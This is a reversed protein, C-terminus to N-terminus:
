SCDVTRDLEVAVDDGSASITVTGDCTANEFTATSNEGPDLSGDSPLLSRTDGDHTATVATLVTGSPFQNAVTVTATTQNGTANATVEVALYADGDDVVAIEASRDATTASFASTGATTALVVVAAVVVAVGRYNM